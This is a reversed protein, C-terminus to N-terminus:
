HSNWTLPDNDWTSPSADWVRAPVEPSRGDTDIYFPVLDLDLQWSNGTIQERIGQAFHIGRLAPPWDGAFFVPEGPDLTLLRGLQNLHHASGAMGLRYLLLLDVSLSQPRYSHEFTQARLAHVYRWQESYERFYTWDLVKVQATGDDTGSSNRVVTGTSDRRDVYYVTPLTESPQEYTMPALAQSRTLPWSSAVADLASDRRFPMTQVRTTGNRQDAVLIGIDAAFPGILDSYTGTQDGWTRDFTGQTRVDIHPALYPPRMITRLLTGIDTGSPFTHTTPASSLQATWSAAFVTTEARHGRDNRRQRGVRGRFRPGIGLPGQGVTSGIHTAAASTLSVSLPDGAGATRGDPFVVEATSPSVGGGPSSKGHTITISSINRDTVTGLNDTVVEFLPRPVGDLTRYLRGPRPM